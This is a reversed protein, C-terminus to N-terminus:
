NSAQDLMDVEEDTLRWGSAGANDEVNRVKTAGPIPLAGKCMLWNLAVQSPTKGGHLQGIEKLLSVVPQIDAIYRGSYMRGRWGPPRNEPIIKGTLLGSTLPRYAILMM